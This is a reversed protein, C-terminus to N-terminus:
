RKRDWFLVRGRAPIRVPWLAGGASIYLTKPDDGGFARSTAEDAPVTVIETLKGTKDFM